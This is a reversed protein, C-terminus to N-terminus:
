LTYCKKHKQLQNKSKKICIWYNQWDNVYKYCMKSMRSIQKPKNKSLM